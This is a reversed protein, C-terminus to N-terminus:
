VTRLQGTGRTSGNMTAGCSSPGTNMSRQFSAFLELSGSVVNIPSIPRINTVLQWIGKLIISCKPPSRIPTRSLVNSLVNMLNKQIRIFRLRAIPSTDFDDIEISHSIIRETFRIIRAAFDPDALTRQRLDDLNINARLWVFCHLHLMGRGNSEVVGYYNSVDGLNGINGTNTHLLGDLVGRCVRDFFQAVAVPNSLAIKQRLRSMDSASISPSVNEGALKLILPDRLDSPNITLWIWPM